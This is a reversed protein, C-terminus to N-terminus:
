GDGRRKDCNIHYYIDREEQIKKVCADVIERPRSCHLYLNEPDCAESIAKTRLNEWGKKSHPNNGNFFRCFVLMHLEDGEGYGSYSFVFGYQCSDDYPKAHSPVYMIQTGAPHEKAKFREVQIARRLLEAGDSM